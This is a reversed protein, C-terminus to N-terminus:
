TPAESNRLKDKICIDDNFRRGKAIPDLRDSLRDPVPVPLQLLIRDRLSM